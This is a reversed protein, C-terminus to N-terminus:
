TPHMFWAITHAAGLAILTLCLLPYVVRTLPGALFPRM